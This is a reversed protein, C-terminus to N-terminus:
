NLIEVGEVVISSGSNTPTIAVFFWVSASTNNCTVSVQTISNVYNSGSTQSSIGGILLNNKLVYQAKFPLFPTFNGGTAISTILTATGFNNTTNIYIGMTYSNSSGTRTAYMFLDLFGSASLSGATVEYTKALTLSTTGTVTTSTVDRVIVKKRLALADFVGNSSVANASGDTPTADITPIDSTIAFTYTGTPKNNPPVFIAIDTNAGITRYPVVIKNVGEVAKTTILTAGESLDNVNGSTFINNSTQIYSILSSLSIFSAENTTNNLIFCVFTSSGADFQLSYTFNGITQVYSRGTQMVQQLTPTNLNVVPNLPDTNDVATGTVSEVGGGGSQTNVNIVTINDVTNITVDQITPTVNIDIITSM